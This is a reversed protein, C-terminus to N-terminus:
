VSARRPSKSARIRAIAEDWLSAHQLGLPEPIQPFSPCDADDDCMGDAVVEDDDYQDDPLPQNPRQCPSTHTMTHM